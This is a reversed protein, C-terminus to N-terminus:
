ESLEGTEETNDETKEEIATDLRHILRIVQAKRERRVKKTVGLDWTGSRFMAGMAPVPPSDMYAELESEINGFQVSVTIQPEEVLVMQEGYILGGSVAYNVATRNYVLIGIWLLTISLFVSIPIIVCAEITMMGKNRM